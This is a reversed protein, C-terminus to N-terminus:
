KFVTSGVRYLGTQMGFLVMSAGLPTASTFWVNGWQDIQQPNLLSDRKAKLDPVVESHGVQLANKTLSDIKLFISDSIGKKVFMEEVFLIDNANSVAIGNLFIRLSDLYKDTKNFLIYFGTLNQKEENTGLDLLKAEYANKLNERLTTIDSNMWGIPVAIDDTKKQPSNCTIFCFTLCCLLFIKM